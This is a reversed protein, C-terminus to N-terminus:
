KGSWFEVGEVYKVRTIVGLRDREFMGDKKDLKWNGKEVVGDASVSMGKGYKIGKIYYGIHVSGDSEIKRGLGESVGNMFSGMYSSLDAYVLQGIGNMVILNTLDGQYVSQHTYNELKGKGKIETNAKGRHFMTTLKIQQSEIYLSGRGHMQDDSWAGSYVSNSATSSLSTNGVFVQQGRGHRLDNRWQGIYEEGGSTRLFGVGQRSVRTHCFVVAFVQFPFFPGVAGFVSHLQDLIPLREVYEEFSPVQHSAASAHSLAANSRTASMEALQYLDFSHGDTTAAVVQGQYVQSQGGEDDEAYVVQVPMSRDLLGDIWATHISTLFATSSPLFRFLVTGHLFDDKWECDVSALYHLPSSSTEPFEVRSHTTPRYFTYTCRGDKKDDKWIGKVLDGNAFSYAGSGHRHNDAIEGDYEDGNSYILSGSGHRVGHLWSGTYEVVSLTPLTDCLTSSEEVPEITFPYQMRGQGNPCNAQWEGAYVRGDRFWQCGSGARQGHSWEGDYRSALVRNSSGLPCAQYVNLAGQNHFQDGQCGGVYEISQILVQQQNDILELRLHGTGTKFGYYFDGRYVVELQVTPMNDLSMVTGAVPTLAPVCLKYTIQGPGHFRGYWHEGIYTHGEASVHCGHGERRGRKWAGNYTSGDVWRILGHGHFEGADFEGEYVYDTGTLVGCGSPLDNMWEGKYLFQQGDSLTARFEGLGERDGHRWYGNYESHDAFQMRGLGERCGANWQGLYSQTSNLLSGAVGDEATSEEYMYQCHGRGQALGLYLQGHYEDGNPFHMRGVGSPSLVFCSSIRVNVNILAASVPHSLEAVHPNIPPSLHQCTLKSWHYLDVSSLIARKNEAISHAELAPGFPRISASLLGYFKYCAQLDTSVAKVEGSHPPQDDSWVGEIVHGVYALAHDESESSPLLHLRGRGHRLDNRWEGTWHSYVQNQSSARLIGHGHRVFAPNDPNSPHLQNPYHVQFPAVPMHRVAQTRAWVGTQVPEYSSEGEYVEGTEAHLYVHKGLEAWTSTDDLSSFIYTPIFRCGDQWLGTYSNGSIAWIYRGQGERIGAVHQGEYVDGNAYVTRGSGTAAGCSMEGTYVAGDPYTCVGLGHPQDDVWAGSYEIYIPRPCEDMLAAERLEAATAGVIEGSVDVREIPRVHATSYVIRGEGHRKGKLFAGVYQDSNCYTMVGQGSPLLNLHNGEYHSGDWYVHRGFGTAADNYWQGTYVNLFKTPSVTSIGSWSPVRQRHYSWTGTGHRRNDKWDGEYHNPRLGGYPSVMVGRGDRVGCVVDGDYREGTAKIIITAHGTREGAVFDGIYLLANTVMIGQGNPNDNQWEGEFLCEGKQNPFESHRSISDVMDRAADETDDDRDAIDQQGKREMSLLEERDQQIQEVGNLRYMLKGRGSRKDLAYDGVFLDGNAFLYRGKGSMRGEFFSGEYLEKKTQIYYKGEGWCYNYQFEGCYIDGTVTRSILRDAEYCSRCVKQPQEVPYYLRPLTIKFTGHEACFNHGCQRCHHRPRALLLSNCGPFQCKGTRKFTPRPGQPEFSEPYEKQLDLAKMESNGDSLFRNYIPAKEHYDAPPQVVYDDSGNSYYLEGHGRRLSDVFSGVYYWGSAYRHSHNGTLQVGDLASSYIPFDPRHFPFPPPDPSRLRAIIDSEIPTPPTPLAPLNISVFVPPHVPHAPPISSSQSVQSRPSQLMNPSSTVDTFTVTSSPENITTIPQSTAPKTSSSQNISQKNSSISQQRPTSLIQEEIVDHQSTKLQTTDFASNTLIPIPADASESLPKVYPTPDTSQDTYFVVRTHSQNPSPPETVVNAQNITNDHKNADNRDIRQQLTSM